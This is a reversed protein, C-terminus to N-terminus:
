PLGHRSKQSLAMLPTDKLQFIKLLYSEFSSSTLGRKDRNAM